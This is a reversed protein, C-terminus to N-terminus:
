KEDVMDYIWHMNSSERLRELLQQKSFTQYRRKIIRTGEALSGKGVKRLDDPFAQFGFGSPHDFQVRVLPEGFRRWGKKGVERVEVRNRV